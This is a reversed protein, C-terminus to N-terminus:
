FRREPVSSGKLNGCCDVLRQSKCSSRYKQQLKHGAPLVAARVLAYNVFDKTSCVIEDQSRRRRDSKAITNSARYDPWRVGGPWGLLRRARVRLGDKGRPRSAWCRAARGFRRLSNMAVPHILSSKRLKCIFVDIIKPEPEDMGGYLHNLFMEKTVAIGKRLSLLELIQCEKRTLHL